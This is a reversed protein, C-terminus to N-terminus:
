GPPLEDQKVMDAPHIAPAQRRGWAFIDDLGSHEAVIRSLREHEVSSLGAFDAIPLAM